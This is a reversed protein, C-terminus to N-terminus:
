NGNQFGGEELKKKLTIIEGAQQEVLMKYINTSVFLYATLPINKQPNLAFIKKRYFEYIEQPELNENFFVHKSITNISMQIFADLILYQFKPNEIFFKQSQMFNDLVSVGEILNSSLEVTTGATHTVSDTRKRYHYGEFPIYIYNQACSLCMLSFIFDETVTLMPFKINNELLFERRYIKHWVLTSHAKKILIVMRDAIDSIEPFTEKPSIRRSEMELIEDKFEGDIEKYAFCKQAHVVDANFEEAVKYFNELVDESLFDDSDMFYVYKGKAIDIGFNRPIGPCGSNTKNTAVTMPINKADFVSIFKEAVALSNDTSCDDVVIVEFNKFTQNLISNLCEEVYKETNYMPIIVSVAPTNETAM